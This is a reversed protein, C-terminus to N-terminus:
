APWNGLIETPMNALVDITRAADGTLLHNFPVRDSDVEYVFSERAFDLGEAKDSFENVVVVMDKENEVVAALQNIPVQVGKGARTMQGNLQNMNFVDTNRQMEKEPMYMGGEAGNGAIDRKTAPM